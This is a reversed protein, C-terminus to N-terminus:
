IAPNENNVSQLEMDNSITSIGQYLHDNITTNETKAL